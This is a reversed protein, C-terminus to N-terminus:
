DFIFFRRRKDKVRVIKVPTSIVDGIGPISQAIKAAQQHSTAKFVGIRRGKTRDRKARSVEFFLGNNKIGM